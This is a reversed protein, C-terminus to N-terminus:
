ETGRVFVRSLLWKKAPTGNLRNLVASVCSLYFPETAKAHARIAVSLVSNTLEFMTSGPFMGRGSSGGIDAKRYNEPDSFWNDDDEEVEVPGLVPSPEGQLM